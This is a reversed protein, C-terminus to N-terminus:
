RKMTQDKVKKYQNCHLIFQDLNRFLGPYSIDIYFKDKQIWKKYKYNNLLFFLHCNPVFVLDNVDYENYKVFFGVWVDYNTKKRKIEYDNIHKINIMLCNKEEIECKEYSDVRPTGLFKSDLYLYHNPLKIDIDYKNELNNSFASLGNKNLIKIMKEEYFRGVNYSSDNSM